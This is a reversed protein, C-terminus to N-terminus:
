DFTKKKTQKKLMELFLNLTKKKLHKKGGERMINKIKESRFCLFLVWHGKLNDLGCAFTLALASLLSNLQLLGGKFVSLRALFGETEM